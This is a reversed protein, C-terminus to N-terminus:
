SPYADVELSFVAGLTWAGIGFGDFVGCVDFVGCLVIMVVVRDYFLGCVDFCCLM